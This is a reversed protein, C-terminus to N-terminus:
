GTHGSGYAHDLRSACRFGEIGVISSQGTGNVKMSFPLDIQPGFVRRPSPTGSFGSEAWVFRGQRRGHTTRLVQRAMACLTKKPYRKQSASFIAKPWTSGWSGAYLLKRRRKSARPSRFRELIEASKSCASNGHALPHGTMSCILNHGPLSTEGQPGVFRM